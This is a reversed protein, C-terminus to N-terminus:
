TDTAPDAGPRPRWVHVSNLMLVANTASMVYFVTQPWVSAILFGTIYSVAAPWLRREVAITMMAAVTFWLFIRLVHTAIPPVGLHWAGAELLIQAVLAFLVSALVRRNLVTSTM